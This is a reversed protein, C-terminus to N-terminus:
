ASGLLSSCLGDAIADAMPRTYHCVDLYLVADLDRGVTSLDVFDGGDALDPFANAHLWHYVPACLAGPRFLQHLPDMIRQRAPTAFFPVPQWAFLTRVGQRAAVARVMARTDLYNRWVLHALRTGAEGFPAADAPRDSDALARHVAEPSMLPAAFADDAANYGAASPMAARGDGTFLSRAYDLVAGLRGLRRRRKEDQYLGDLAKVLRPNGFAYFSDNYGDLFVAVDPVFGQDLLSLFRLMEHRSTYSGSAFNYVQWSPDTHGLSAQLRAPVTDADEVNFGLGTSGGFFFVTKGTRAPPWPQDEGGHGRFGAPDVTFHQTRCPHIGLLGYPLVPRSLALATDRLLRDIAAADRGPFAPRLDDLCLGVAGMQEVLNNPHGSM